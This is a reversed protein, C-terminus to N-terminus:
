AYAKINFLTSVTVSEMQKEKLIVLLQELVEISKSSTDHLLIVDGKKVKKQISKIISRSSKSTTDLSRVSWGISQLDTGFIAKKIRPNTVGFPPRFLKTELGTLKKIITNTELLEAIVNKTKFFGFKEDHTYTHNGVVHGEAIIKKLLEPNEKIHKGICFFTANANYRKLLNLVQPTFENNPGDDFTIAVQNEQIKHDCNLSELHYNWKINFSGILTLIFWCILVVFLYWKSLNSFTIILLLVITISNVIKFKLM